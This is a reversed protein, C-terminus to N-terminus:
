MRSVPANGWAPNRSLFIIRDKPATALGERYGHRALVTAAKMGAGFVAGSPKIQNSAARVLDTNEILDLYQGLKMKDGDFSAWGDSPPNDLMAGLAAFGIEWIGQEYDEGLGGMSVVKVPIGDRWASIAAHANQPVNEINIRSTATNSDGVRLNFEEESLKEGGLFWAQTGDPKIVAPGDTRNLKGDEYWLETGDPKTVHRLQGLIFTADAIADLFTGDPLCPKYTQAFEDPQIGYIDIDGSILVGGKKIKMEEGWPALFSVNESLRVCPIAGGVARFTLFGNIDPAGGEESAYRQTFTSGGIFYCEGSPNRIMMDGYKATNVTEIHGDAMVTTLSEGPIAPRAAVTVDKRYLVAFQKREAFYAAADINTFDTTM